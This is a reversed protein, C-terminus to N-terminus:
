SFFWFCFIEHCQGKLTFLLYFSMGVFFTCFGKQFAPVLTLQYEIQHLNGHDQIWIRIRKGLVSGSGPCGFWHPVMRIRIRIWLVVANSIRFSFNFILNRLSSVMSCLSLSCCILRFFFFFKESFYLLFEYLLSQVFTGIM